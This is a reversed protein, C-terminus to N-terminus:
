PIEERKRRKADRLAQKHAESHPKGKNWPSQPNAQKTATMKAISEPNRPKGKQAESIKRKVEESKPKVSFAHLAARAAESPTHGTKAASMKARVEPTYLAPRAGTANFSKLGRRLQEIKEPTAPRGKRVESMARRHEESFPHGKKAESIKRCHEPTRPYGDGVDGLNFLRDRDIQCVWFEEQANLNERPCNILVAVAFAEEGHKNWAAQLYSNAHRGRRLERKHGGIRSNINVSQGIYCKDTARCHLMYIGSGDRRWDGVSLFVEQPTM